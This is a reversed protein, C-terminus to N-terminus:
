RTVYSVTKAAERLALETDVGSLDVKSWHEESEEYLDLIIFAREERQGYQEDYHRRIERSKTRLTNALDRLTKALLDDGKAFAASAEYMVQDAARDWGDGQGLTFSPGVIHQAVTAPGENEDTMDSM